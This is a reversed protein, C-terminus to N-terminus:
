TGFAGVVECVVAERLVVKICILVKKHGERCIFKRQFVEFPAGVSSVVEWGVEWFMHWEDM